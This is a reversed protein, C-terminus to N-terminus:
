LHHSVQIAIVTMVFLIAIVLLVINWVRDRRARRAINAKRRELQAASAHGAKAM